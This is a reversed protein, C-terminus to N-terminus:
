PVEQEVRIRGPGGGQHRLVHDVRPQVISRDTRDGDLAPVLDPTRLGVRTRPPARAPRRDAAPGRRPRPPLRTASSWAVPASVSTTDGDRSFAVRASSLKAAAGITASAAAAIVAANAQSRFRRFSHRRSCCAGDGKPSCFRCTRSVCRNAVPGASRRRCGVREVPEPLVLTSPGFPSRGGRAARPRPVPLRGARSRIDGGVARRARCRRPARIGSCSRRTGAPLAPGSRGSTSPGDDGCQLAASGWAM